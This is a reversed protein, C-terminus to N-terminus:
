QSDFKHLNSVSILHLKLINGNFHLNKWLQYNRLTKNKAPKKRRLIVFSSFHPTSGLLLSSASRWGFVQKIIIAIAKPLMLDFWSNQWAMSRVSMGTSSGALHSKYAIHNCFLQWTETIGYLRISLFEQLLTSRPLCLWFSIFTNQTQM